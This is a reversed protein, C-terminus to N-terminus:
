CSIVLGQPTDMEITLLESAFSIFENRDIRGNGDVDMIRFSLYKEGDTLEWQVQWQTTGDFFETNEILMNHNVDFRQFLNKYYNDCLDIANIVDNSRQHQPQQVVVQKQKKRKQRVSDKINSRLEKIYKESGQGVMNIVNDKMRNKKEGESLQTTDIIMSEINKYGYSVLSRFQSTTIDICCNRYMNSFLNGVSDPNSVVARVIATMLAIQMMSLKM